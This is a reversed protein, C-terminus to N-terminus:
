LTELSLTDGVASHTPAYPYDWAMPTGAGSCAALGTIIVTVLIPFLSRTATMM